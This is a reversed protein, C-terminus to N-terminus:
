PAQIKDVEQQTETRIERIEKMIEADDDGKGLKRKLKNARTKSKKIVDYIDLWCAYHDELKRQRDGEATKVEDVFKKAQKQIMDLRYEDRVDASTQLEVYKNLENDTPQDGNFFANIQERADEQTFTKYQQAAMYQQIKRKMQKREQASKAADFREMATQLDVVGDQLEKRQTAKVTSIAAKLCAEADVGNMVAANYTRMIADMDGAQIYTKFYDVAKWRTFGKQSPMVLDFLKFEKDEQTPVSFPLFKKATMALLAVTNGYKEAIEQTERPQKYGYMGVTLPLDYALYRGIPNAKGSMREMLPTPFEVGHRGMFLEPFERFQKGWRAYWESGDDYRGLFLHTQQSLTNGYMTYDYWKMGDPYALEYPSKYDPNTKRMEEAEEKLKEEDKRRFFANIANMMVYFFGCVGLIYCQKANKSRFRRNENRPVDVGFVRKINDANYRLYNLFGSESYLSGFGFNALFHRQTSILWDPSLFARRLWKVLAPSVNLLEFWQGGFSDNVYQGAEDLLQERQEPTLGEKEVRKDIQEAFMKFCAIKLGDHLYNWLVKDMGKNIYDLAAALPTAAYGAGKKALGESNALERVMERFKETVNNVDAAAYDQTAGLQVLHSAAFKFDDPHAYAPITGAKACDFIIYEGLAKLARDPRMQAMAVETLAGMHFASFSLEIKKALGAATDYVKGTKTLWEPIDKTRMTGFINSFARQIDKLVWVDGVGPVKYMDYRDSVAINPKSSNLLPLVSVTEGDTNQEEVVIFSLDDLFKKNAVAENNSASYYAMIDAIDHYKPVLGIEIGQMYTPIERTRMNPSKTRQYNEVYKDWAVPDSKEKDWIHNVYGEEIYGSENRLGADELVHYFEDYWDKIDDLVEQIGPLDVFREVDTPMASGGGAASAKLLLPFVKMIEDGYVNNYGQVGENLENLRSAFVNAAAHCDEKKQMDSPDNQWERYYHGVIEMSDHLAELNEESIFTHSRQFTKSKNVEAIAEDKEVQKFHRYRDAEIIFMLAERIDKGKVGAAKGIEDIRKVLNHLWVADEANASELNKRREIISLKTHRRAGESSMDVGVAAAFDADASNDAELDEPDVIHPMREPDGEYLGIDVNAQEQIGYRERWASYAERYEDNARQLYDFLSPASSWADAETEYDAVRVAYEQPSEGRERKPFEGLNQKGAPIGNNLRWQDMDRNFQEHWKENIQEADPMPDNNDRAQQMASRWREWERLRQMYQAISENNRKRPRGRRSGSSDNAIGTGPEPEGAMMAGPEEANQGTLWNVYATNCAKGMGKHPPLINIGREALIPLLQPPIIDFNIGPEGAFEREWDDAVEEWPVIEIPKDYRSLILEGGNWPHKGVSLKAKDAKYGSSLESTPYETRVYVLNPREWAQKFQKNVLTPRIHIYPNYDVSGITKGDPKILDIKGGDTALQPNEDSKEWAGFQFPTTPKRGEGKKGLRNAMPSGLTGDPNMVVNRYGIEKPENDLRNLDDPDTVPEASSLTVNSENANILGHDHYSYYNNVYGDNEIDTDSDIHVIDILRVGKKKLLANFKAVKEKESPLFGYNGYLTVLTGGMQNMYRAILEAGQETMADKLRTWPLFVNGTVNWNHNMVILSMKKHEGLRHSSVFQAVQFATGCKFATEPNWDKDFVQKSFSYVKMPVTNEQSEPMNLKETPISEDFVGYKGSKTDIIIGSILKKGFIDRAVTMVGQDQKSCYLNGSPHNHVFYVKDPNIEKYAVMTQRFDVPVETYSGIAMHIITPVGDKVLVVFSNEVAADELEKFIYAVDQISEIKNKGTFSFVGYEQYQRQVHCEEGPELDRLRLQTLDIGNQKVEQKQEEEKPETAFDQENFLDMQRFSTVKPQKKPAPENVEFAIEQQNNIIDTLKKSEDLLNKGPDHAKEIDKLIKALPYPSSVSNTRNVGNSTSSSDDNLVEIKQVEYVHVGNGEKPNRDEKMLTMVYYPKGDVTIAGYFRHMLSETNIGIGDRENNENKIYDPHEEVEVSNNIVDNLHEIVALHVGKNDSEGQHKPNLSTKIAQGSISYYFEKGYNNYHQKVPEGDHIFIKKAAEMAQTTAEAIKGTYTHRPIDIMKVSIDALGPAVVGKEKVARKQREDFTDSSDGLHFLIDSRQRVADMTAQIRNQDNEDGISSREYTKVVLGADKLAKVVEPSTTTPVVAIAFENLGVPRKFKTEFYKVPLQKAEEMFNMWQSALESDKDIDYGYEKNMYAIPDRQQMAEQLRAEAIDINIFLNSDIKKMDSVQHIIDFWEDSMQKHRDKIEEDNKLLHRYKRIESLSKLKKLLGAKTASLGGNSYANTEAEKNMLRSANKVTNPVYRRNGDPTWGAFLKEEIDEDNLLNEKWQEYEEALNEKAVRYSADNDTGYWDPEPNNRQKEDRWNDYVYSDGKAFWIEGNEDVLGKRYNDLMAQIYKEAKEKDDVKKANERLKNEYQSMILDVLADSQEKTINSPMTTKPEGFIKTIADFEEKSHTTRKQRIEPNLGKQKLFLWHLHEGNGEVWDNIVGLLHRETEKDGDSYKKAIEQRHKDGKNTLFRVVNPYTPTWADGSYTGANRGTRSDILSSTPILSIEGYDTHNYKNTDFVAMSPNALGGQKIAKKLKEESINHVGMLTREVMEDRQQMIDSKERIPNFRKELLDRLPMRIFEDLRDIKKGFMRAIAEWFRRLVDKVKNILSESDASKDAAAAAMFEEESMAGSLRSHVESAMRDDDNWIARYNPNERVQQWMQTKKLTSVMEKWLNPDSKQVYLDWIHTYEHIPSNPNMGRPTLSITSGDTWGYVKGTQGKQFMPQGQMVSEKMEPTVDISWMKQASPELEPLEIEGVKIGWKKGYKNMFRPLIEDYFTRMGNGGVKLDDSNISEEDDLAMMKEAVDKGVLETLNKNIAEEISSDTVNGDNDTYITDGNPFLIFCRGDKTYINDQRKIQNVIQALSYREAQQDGTTWAIKDYGNEAAYRLMRKMALEHWNKEFPAQPVANDKESNIRRIEYDVENLKERLESRKHINEELEKDNYFLAQYEEVKGEKIYGDEGILAQGEKSLRIEDRRELDRKILAEMEANIEAHRKRLEMIKENPHDPKYGYQRADQHRKSQIEDIVLVRQQNAQEIAQLEKDLKNMKERESEKMKSLLGTIDNRDIGYKASIEDMFNDWLRDVEEEAQNTKNPNDIYSDGFRIWAVARGGGADGFHIMDDEQYPKIGPVVLAIERKNHLGDTTYKKRVQNIIKGTNLFQNVGSHPYGDVTFPYLTINGNGDGTFVFAHKFQNGYKKGMEEFALYAANRNSLRQHRNRIELWRKLENGKLDAFQPEKHYKEQIEEDFDMKEQIAKVIEHAWKAQLEEFEKRLKIMQPNEDLSPFQKYNVDEVTIQNAELYQLIEDKDISKVGVAIADELWDKLEIWKDEGAKLGGNKEIMKLWQDPTAKQQKIGEVAKLANSYFVPAPQAGDDFMFNICENIKADEENFIVYNTAGEGGGMITGAPYKIGTIGINSLFESAKWAGNMGHELEAYLDAGSQYPTLIIEHYGNTFRVRTDIEQRKWGNATLANDVMELIDSQESMKAYYDLYTAENEDPIEVKYLFRNRRASIDEIGYERFYNAAMKYERAIARAAKSDQPYTKAHEEFLQANNESKEILEQVDDTMFYAYAKAAAQKRTKAKTVIKGDAFGSTGHMNGGLVAYDEGIKRSDTLYTGWGFSQSGAGENMHRHDFKTFVAGSGHWVDIQPMIAAADALADEQQPKQPDLDFLQYLGNSRNAWDMYEKAYKQKEFYKPVGYPDRENIVAYRKMENPRMNRAFNAIAQANAITYIQMMQDAEEQSVQKVPVNAKNLATLVAKTARDRVQQQEKDYVAQETTEEISASLEKRGQVEGLVNGVADSSQQMVSLAQRITKITRNTQDRYGEKGESIRKNAHDYRRLGLELLAKATSDDSLSETLRRVAEITEKPSANGNDLDQVKSEFAKTLEPSTYDNIHKNLELAKMVAEHQQEDTPRIGNDKLPQLQKKVDNLFKTLNKGNNLVAMSTVANNVENIRSMNVLANFLPMKLGEPILSALERLEERTFLKKENNMISSTYEDWSDSDVVEPYLGFRDPEKTFDRNSVKKLWKPDLGKNDIAWKLIHYIEEWPNEMMRNFAIEDIAFRPYGLLEFAAERVYDVDVGFGDRFQSVVFHYPNSEANTGHALQFLKEQNQKYVDKLQLNAKDSKEIMNMLQDPTAPLKEDVPKYFMPKGLEFRQSLPIVNGYKDYVVPAASRLTAAHGRETSDALSAVIGNGLAQICAEATNGSDVVNDIVVPIKGEPIEGSVTIGMDKSKIPKGGQKKTDYQSARPASSLIDAVESGTEKAIANALKLMDTAKGTHSPAPILVANEPILPAMLKAAKDIDAEKGEKIKHALSRLPRYKDVAVFPTMGNGINEKLADNFLKTAKDMDGSEVAQLYEDDRQKLWQEVKKRPNVGEAFDKLVQDYVQEVSEYKIHLFDGIKKWFDQIAKSINKWINNWKGKYSPDRQAMREYEQRIREEGNNGSGRAIMEEAIDDDSTLEPYLDKIFKWTDADQQMLGVVEKWGEPNLRRFAECWLHSYEHLPLNANIRRPDLYLKGKYAFGYVTGDTTNMKRLKGEESNDGKAKKLANRNETPDDSVDIGMDQLHDVMASGAERNEIEFMAQERRRKIEADLVELNIKAQAINKTIRQGKKTSVDIHLKDLLDKNISLDQEAKKRLQVLENFPRNQLDKDSWSPEISPHEGLQQRRIIEKRLYDLAEYPDVEGGAKGQAAERSAAPQQTQTEANGGLKDDANQEGYKSGRLLKAINNIRECLEPSGDKFEGKLFDALPGGNVISQIFRAVVEENQIEEDQDAYSTKVEDLVGEYDQDILRATEAFDEKTFGRSSLMHVNEHYINAKKMAQTLGFREMKEGYLLVSGLEPMYRGITSDDALDGRIVNLIEEGVGAQQLSQLDSETSIIINPRADIESTVEQIAQQLTVDKEADYAIGNVDNTVKTVGGSTGGPVNTDPVVSMGASAERREPTQEQPNPEVTGAAGQRQVEGQGAQGNGVAEGSPNVSDLSQGGRNQEENEAIIQNIIEQEIATPPMKMLEEFTEREEPTLHYADAWQQMEELKAQEEMERDYEEQQRVIAEAEAIRNDIVRHSIDSPRQATQMMDILANRLDETSYLKGDGLDPQAEYLGHVIEEVGKGEGEPALYMNFANTSYEKGIGREWGSGLEEQLGRVHRGGVDKGEWNISKLGLNQAIYEYIDRPEQDNIVDLAEPYRNYIDRALRLKDERSSAKDLTKGRQEAPTLEEERGNREYLAPIGEAIERLRIAENSLMDQIAEYDAVEHALQKVEDPTLELHGSAYANLLQQRSNIEPQVEDRQRNRLALRQENIFKEAEVSDAFNRLLYNNANGVSTLGFNPQGNELTIRDENTSLNRQPLQPQYGSRAKFIDSRRQQELQAVEQPTMLSRRIDGWKQNRAEVDQLAAELATIKAKMDAVEQPDAIDENGALWQKMTKLEQEGEMQRQKLQEKTNQIDTLQQKRAKEPDAGSAAIQSMIYEAAVDANTDASTLDPQGDAFGAIGKTFREQQEMQRATEAEVDLQQQIRAGEATAIAQQAEDARMPMQSGDPFTFIPNRAQDFGTVTATLPQGAIALEVQQGIQLDTGDSMAQYQQQLYAIHDEVDQQLMEEMSQPPQVNIIDRVPVQRPEGAGDVAMIGGYHNELNGNKYYVIEGTNLQIPTIMGEPDAIAQLKARREQEWQESQQIVAEDIGRHTEIADRWQEIAEEQLTSLNSEGIIRDAKEDNDAMVAEMIQTRINALRPDSDPLQTMLRATALRNEYGIAPLTTTDDAVSLGKAYAQDRREARDAPPTYTGAGTTGATGTPTGGEGGIGGEGGAPPPTTTDTPGATGGEGGEAPPPTQTNGPLLRDEPVFKETEPSKEKQLREFEKIDRIMSQQYDNIAKQESNTRWVTENGRKFAYVGEGTQEALKRAEAETHGAIIEKIYGTPLGNAKEYDSEYASAAKGQKVYADFHQVYLDVLNIKEGSEADNIINDESLEEGAQLNKYIDTLEDIHQHLYAVQKDAKTLEEGNQIKEAVQQYAQEFYDKFRAYAEVNNIKDKLAETKNNFLDNMMEEDAKDAEERSNYKIERIVNGDIDRTRLYTGNDTSVIETEVEYGPPAIVGGLLRAVRQKREWPRDPNTMFDRYANAAVEADAENIYGEREEKDTSKAPRMRTLADMLEAGEASERIDKVDDENLIPKDPTMAGKIARVPHRLAEILKAGTAMPNASMKIFGLKIGSEILGDYPNQFADEGQAMKQLEEATYMTSAETGFGALKGALRKFGTLQSTLRNMAGGTVGFLTGTTAGSAASGLTNGLITAADERDRIGRFLTGTGEAGALTIASSPIHRMMGEVVGKKLYQKGEEEILRAAASTTIHEAAAREAVRKALLEGTAKAGLKGWGGWLWFDAAMGTALRAGEAWVNPDVNPNKGMETMADAMNAYRQQSETRLYRNAIMALINDETLGKMIHELTSKPMARQIFTQEFRNRVAQILQPVVYKETYAEPSMNKEKSRRIVEEKLAEDKMIENAAIELLKDKEVGGEGEGQMSPSKFLSEEFEKEILEPDRLKNGQRTAYAAAGIAGYGSTTGPVFQQTNGKMLEQEKAVAREEAEDIAQDIAPAFHESMLNQADQSELRDGVHQWNSFLGRVGQWDNDTGGYKQKLAEVLQPKVFMNIYDQYDNGMKAATTMLQQQLERDYYLNQLEQLPDTSREPMKEMISQVAETARDKAYKRNITQLLKQRDEMSIGMQDALSNAQAYASKGGMVGEQYAENFKNYLQDYAEGKTTQKDLGTEIAQDRWDVNARLRRMEDNFAQEEEAKTQPYGTTDVAAPQVQTTQQGIAAGAKAADMIGQSIPQEKEKEAEMAALTALDKYNDGTNNPDNYAKLVSQSYPQGNNTIVNGAADTPQAIEGTNTQQPTPNLWEQFEDLKGIDTFGQKELAKHLTEVNKSDSVYQRFEEPKGIDTFGQKELAKYLVDINDNTSAM